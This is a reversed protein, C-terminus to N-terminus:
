LAKVRRKNSLRIHVKFMEPNMKRIDAICSECHYTKTAPNFFSAHPSTCGVSGCQGGLQGKQVVNVQGLLIPHVM